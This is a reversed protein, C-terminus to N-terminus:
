LVSLHRNAGGVRSKFTRAGHPALRQRHQGPRREREDHQRDQAQDGLDHQAVLPAGREGSLDTRGIRALQEFQDGM